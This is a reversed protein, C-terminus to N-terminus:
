RRTGALYWTAFVFAAGAAACQATGGPGLRTRNRRPPARLYQRDAHLKGVGKAAEPQELADAVTAHRIDEAGDDGRGGLQVGEVEGDLDQAGLQLLIRAHHLHEADLLVHGTMQHVRVQHAGVFGPLDLSPAIDGHLEDLAGREVAQEVRQRRAPQPHREVETDVDRQLQELREVVDVADAIAAPLREGDDVTVDGGRVDEEGVVALHLQAVETHGVDVVQGRGLRLAYAALRGVDRGSIKWPAAGM